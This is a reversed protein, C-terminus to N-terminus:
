MDDLFNKKQLHVEYYEGVESLSIFRPSTIYKEAEDVTTILVKEHLDKREIYKGYCSNGQFQFKSIEFSFVSCFNCM